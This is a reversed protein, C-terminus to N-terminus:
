RKLSAIDGKQCIRNGQFKSIRNQYGHWLPVLYIFFAFPIYSLKAGLLAMPVFSSTNWPILVSLLVGSNELDLMFIRKENKSYTEEMLKHSLIIAITQTCGFSASFVSALLTGVFRTTKKQIKEIWVQINELLHLGKLYDAYTSSLLVTLSLKIMGYLGSSSFIKALEPNELEKYGWFLNSSLVSLSDGKFVCILIATTASAAMAWRIHIKFIMFLLLVGVPLLLLLSSGFRQPIQNLLSQDVAQLPFGFSLILYLILSTLFPVFGSKLMDKVNQYINTGTLTAILHASTSMPSTRDGFYAGSFVAGAVLYGPVSGIKAMIMLVLGITGAVGFATGLLMSLVASLLFAGLIFAEPPINVLGHYVLFPITGAEMWSPILFGIFLFVLLMTKIRKAGDWFWSLITKLHYGRKIAVGSLLLLGLFLPIALYVKLMSASLFMLFLTIFLIRQM